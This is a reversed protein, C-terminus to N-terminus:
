KGNSFPEKKLHNNWEWAFEEVKRSRSQGRNYFSLCTLFLPLHPPSDKGQRSRWSGSWRMQQWQWPENLTLHGVVRTPFGGGLEVHSPSWLILSNFWLKLPTDVAKLLHVVPTTIRQALIKWTNQFHEWAQTNKSFLNWKNTLLM